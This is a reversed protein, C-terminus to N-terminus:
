FFYQFTVGEGSVVADIYIEYLDRINEIVLSSGASLPTGQRTALAAVVTSGGVVIYDGNDVEATIIVKRAPTSSTVLRVATGATTVIKRGNRVNPYM